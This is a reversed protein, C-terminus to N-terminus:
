SRQDEGDLGQTGAVRKQFHRDIVYSRVARAAQVLNMTMELNRDDPLNKTLRYRLKMEADVIQKAAEAYFALDSAEIGRGFGQAYIKGVSIDLSSFRQDELPLLLGKELLDEAQVRTLSCAACFATMELSSPDSKDFIVESLEILPTIDKGQDKGALLTKIKSLPFSYRGQMSKIFNLREVCSPDYYAMNRGTRLPEPLLGCAVYHLIASKPLGTAETLEKMRLGPRTRGEGQKRRPVNGEAKAM